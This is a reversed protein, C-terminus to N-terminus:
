VQGVEEVEQESHDQLPWPQLDLSGQELEPVEVGVAEEQELPDLLQCQRPGLFDQELVPAEVEVEQGSHDQLRWQPLDPSDQM